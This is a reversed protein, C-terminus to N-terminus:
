MRLCFGFVPYKSFWCIMLKRLVVSINLSMDNESLIGLLCRWSSLNFHVLYDFLSEFFTLELGLYKKETINRLYSFSFDLSDLREVNM